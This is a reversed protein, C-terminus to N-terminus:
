QIIRVFALPQLERARKYTFIAYKIRHVIVHMDILLPKVDSTMLLPKVEERFFIDRVSTALALAENSLNYEHSSNSSWTIIRM